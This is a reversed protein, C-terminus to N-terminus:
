GRYLGHQCWLEFSLLAFLSRGHDKLGLQHAYWLARVRRSDLVGSWGGDRDFLASQTLDRLPGRFWHDVAVASTRSPEFARGPLVRRALARLGPAEDHEQFRMRLPWRSISEVVAADAFPFVAQAGHIRALAWAAPLRDDGLGYRLDVKQLEAVTGGSGLEIDWRDTGGFDEHLLTTLDRRFLVEVSDKATLGLMRRVPALRSSNFLLPMTRRIANRLLAEAYPRGAGFLIDGAVADFWTRRESRCADLLTDLIVIEPGARPSALTSAIQKCRDASPELPIATYTLGLSEAARSAADGEPRSPGYVRLDAGVDRVFSGALAQEVLNPSFFAGCSTGPAVRTQISESLAHATATLQEQWPAIDDPEAWQVPRVGRHVGNRDIIFAGGPPLAEVDQLLTWPSPVFGYQFFLVVADPELVSSALGSGIMEHLHTGFCVEALDEKAAGGLFLPVHGFRDRALFLAHQVHDVLALSYAGDLHHVCESGWQRYAAAVMSPLSASDYPQEATSLESRLADPKFLEGVFAVTVDGASDGAIGSTRDEGAM